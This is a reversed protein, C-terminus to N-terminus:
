KIFCSLVIYLNDIFNDKEPIYILTRYKFFIIRNFMQSNYQRTKTLRKGKVMNPVSATKDTKSGKNSM